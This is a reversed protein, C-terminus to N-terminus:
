TVPLAVVAASLPHVDWRASVDDREAVVPAVRNVFPDVGADQSRQWSAAIPGRPDVSGRPADAAGEGLFREWAGRLERARSLPSTAADIALWPNVTM